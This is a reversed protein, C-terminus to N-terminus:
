HEFCMNFDEVFYLLPSASRVPPHYWGGRDFRNYEKQLAREIRITMTVSSDILKATIVLKDM